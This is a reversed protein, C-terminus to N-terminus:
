FRFDGPEWVVFSGSKSEPCNHIANWYSAIHIRESHLFAARWEVVVNSVYIPCGNSYEVALM